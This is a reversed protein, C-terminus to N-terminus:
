RAHHSPCCAPHAASEAWPGQGDDRGTRSIRRTQPPRSTATRPRSEPTGAPDPLWVVNGGDLGRLVTSAVKVACPELRTLGRNCLRYNMRGGSSQQIGVVWNRFGERHFYRNKIWQTNKTPHRRGAWRWRGQWIADDVKSYTDKSVQGAHHNAWGRIIPNLRGILPEQQM